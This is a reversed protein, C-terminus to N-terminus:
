IASIRLPYTVVRTDGARSTIRIVLTATDGLLSTSILEASSYREDVPDTDQEEQQLNVRVDQAASNFAAFLEQSTRILGLRLSTMFFTGRDPLYDLSGKETLLEVIFRQVLKSIGAILAGTQGAKVLQQTLLADGVAKSDDFALHDVTKGVYDTVSASLQVM